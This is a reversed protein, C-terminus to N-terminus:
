ESPIDAISRGLKKAPASSASGLRRHVSATNTSPLRKSDDNQLFSLIKSKSAEENSPPTGLEQVAEDVGKLVSWKVGNKIWDFFNFDM